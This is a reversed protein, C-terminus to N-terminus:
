SHDNVTHSQRHSHDIIQTPSGTVATMLQIPSGTVTTMLQTLSGTVTTMLTHSQTPSHDNVTLSRTVTFM